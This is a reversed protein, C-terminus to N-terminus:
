AYVHSPNPQSSTDGDGFQWRYTLAHAPDTANSTFAVATGLATNSAPANLELTQPLETPAPLSSGGGGCGVLLLSMAAASMAARVARAASHFGGM